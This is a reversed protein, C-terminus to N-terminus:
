IWRVTKPCCSMEPGPISSDLPPFSKKARDRKHSRPENTMPTSSLFFHPPCRFIVPEGDAAQIASDGSELCNPTDFAVKAISYHLAPLTCEVTTIIM